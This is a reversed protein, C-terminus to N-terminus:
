GEDKPVGDLTAIPWVIARLLRRSSMIRSASPRSAKPM